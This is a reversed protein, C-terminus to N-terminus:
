SESGRFWLLQDENVVLYLSEIYAWNRWMIMLDLIYNTAKSDNDALDV